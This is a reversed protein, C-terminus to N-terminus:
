NHNTTPNFNSRELSKATLTKLFAVIAKVDSDPIKIGLQYEGMMSVAQDLTKVSGDHYYSSHVATNRLSPVKFVNVDNTNKTVEYLGLDAPTILTKHEIFYNRVAGMKKFQSGGFNAGNHCVACGYSKFLEYGHKEEATLANHNGQMYDDFRSQNLATQVNGAAMAPQLFLFVTMVTLINKFM